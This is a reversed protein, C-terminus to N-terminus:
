DADTSDRGSAAAHQIDGHMEGVVDQGESVARSVLSPM